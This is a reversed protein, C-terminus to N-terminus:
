TRGAPVVCCLASEAARDLAEALQEAAAATGAFRLLGPGLALEVAVNERGIASRRLTHAYDRAREPSIDLALGTVINVMTVSGALTYAIGSTM